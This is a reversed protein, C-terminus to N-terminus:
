FIAQRSKLALDSQPARAKLKEVLLKAHVDKNKLIWESVLRNTDDRSNNDIIIIEKGLLIEAAKVKNLLKVVTGQENYAPILISIKKYNNPTM